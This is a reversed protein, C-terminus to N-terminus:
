SKLTGIDIVVGMEGVGNGMARSVEFVRWKLFVQHFPLGTASVAKVDIGRLLQDAM